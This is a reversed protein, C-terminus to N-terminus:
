LLLSTTRRVLGVTHYHQGQGGLERERSSFGALRLLIIRRNMDVNDATHREAVSFWTDSYLTVSVSM